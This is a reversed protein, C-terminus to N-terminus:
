EIVLKTSIMQKSTHFLVSYLGASFGSVDLSTSTTPNVIQSLVCLGLVDILEIHITEDLAQKFDFYVMNNCPNPAISILDGDLKNLELQATKCDSNKGLLANMEQCLYKYNNVDNSTMTQKLLDINEISDNSLQYFAEAGYDFRILKYAKNKIAKGDSSDTTLKFLECFAWPRISDTSNKIIPMISKSDVPKNTPIYQQWNKFGFNEIITAFLDVSNILAKSVRNPNVVSPGSIILPVHVGYEYVTGKAKSLENIQATKATNGNDGIFIFDTSDLQNLVSLSDMLRGIEHDMAQIMAKFYSKPKNNIDAPTGSLNSYSHLNTPPLHLPEHPANFALWLFFPAQQNQAKIWGVANNVNETTAYNTVTNAAGNTYKTWNLYNPLQGIFPGEHWDFGLALPSTLNIPPTPQKIHWKGINAKTINPNYVKLLKPISIEATDIQNSGGAGGVVGGVGTRFSYRGTLISTRTSSCVQNSTFHDFRIGKLLLKRINPVNVTDTTYGYFGFYDPSLDDAIILVTNRQAQIQCVFAMLSMLLLKKM